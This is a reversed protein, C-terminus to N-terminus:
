RLCRLLASTRKGTVFRIATAVSRPRRVRPEQRYAANTKHDVGSLRHRRLLHKWGNGTAQCLNGHETRENVLRRKAMGRRARIDGTRRMQIRLKRVFSASVDFRAAVRLSSPDAELARLIRSRLDLSIATM